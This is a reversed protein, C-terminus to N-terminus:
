LGPTIAPRSTQELWPIPHRAHSMGTFLEDRTVVATVASPRERGRLPPAVALNRSGAPSPLLEGKVLAVVAARVVITDMGFPAVQVLLATPLQLVTAARSETRRMGRRCSVSRVGRPQDVQSSLGYGLISPLPLIERHRPAPVSGLLDDALEAFSVPEQRLPRPRPRPAAGPSRRPWRDGSAHETRRSSASSSLRSFSSSVSFARSMCITAPLSSSISANRSIALPSQHARRSPAPGHVHELGLETDPLPPRALDHALGAGGLAVPWCASVRVPIQTLPQSRKGPSMRPPPYRRACATSHRSPWWTLRLLTWCSHAPPPGAPAAWAAYAGASSRTWWGPRGAQRGGM